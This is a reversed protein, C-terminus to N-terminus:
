KRLQATLRRPRRVLMRSLESNSIGDVEPISSLLLQLRMSHRSKHRFKEKRLVAALASGLVCASAGLPHKQLVYKTNVGPPLQAAFISIEGDRCPVAHRPFFFLMAKDSISISLRVNHPVLLELGSLEQANESCSMFPGKSM